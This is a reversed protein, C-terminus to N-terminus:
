FSSQLTNEWLELVAARHPMALELSVRAYKQDQLREQHQWIRYQRYAAQARQASGTDILGLSAFRGLLALNGINETLTKHQAAYALILFQVIFEVDVIGGRDHKVDFLGSNNPHADLIKKRMTLVDQTLSPIDRERSLVDCRIAEFIPNLKDDGAVWRARTLAQHEWTWAKQNQYDYFASLSSVLLGSVGDPRLRLDTPYLIGAPTLTTLWLNIMQALRAYVESARPHDDDYLFLLDLDSAYGLERGGLKGYAIISFKATESHKDRLRQWCLLFLNHLILDALASLHDSLTELSIAGALDQLFLRFVQAHKFERLVNMQQEIDEGAHELRAGLKERLAHWDPAVSTRADLLEDLLLPHRTLYQSAWPSAATLKVVQRVALPHEALLALYAERRCIGEILSLVRRLTSEPQAYHVVEELLLPILDDFRKQSAGPLGRYLQGLRLQKLTDGVEAAETFGLKELQPVTNGDGAQQWVPALPHNVDTRHSFVLEFHHTVQNRHHTLEELFAAASNFGMAAALVDFQAADDPLRHTQADNRYQLRHELTRLFIYAASLIAVTEAPLLALREIVTLTQLTAKTQLAGERGGRILQFVQVIFEIERIGGPGIKIDDRLERRAVEQRIQGHLDRLSQLSSFDLYRRYIFPRILHLLATGEAGYIVRAKVWAYREWARGQTQYYIEMVEFSAVLPGSDGHPRLRTDIRFVFGHETIESLAAILRKALKSFFEFNSTSAGAQTVGEEPYCFILDVDSSVNLERGGLKGMAVVVLQQAVGTEAGLPAGHKTELEAQLFSLATQITLEALDSMTTMVESLDALGNLDRTMVRLMVRKRLLRLAQYLQAQTDLPWGALLTTMEERTWAHQYGELLIKREHLDQQLVGRAYQSFELVKALFLFDSASATTSNDM